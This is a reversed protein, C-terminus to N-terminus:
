AQHQKYREKNELRREQLLCLHNCGRADLFHAAFHVGIGTTRHSPTRQSKLPRSPLRHTSKPLRHYYSLVLILIRKTM